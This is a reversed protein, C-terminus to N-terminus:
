RRDCDDDSEGAEEDRLHSQEEILEGLDDIKNSLKRKYVIHFALEMTEGTFTHTKLDEIANAIYAEISLLKRLFEEEIQKYHTSM